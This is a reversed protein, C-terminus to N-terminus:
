TSLEAANSSFACNFYAGPPYERDEGLHVAHRLGWHAFARIIEDREMWAPAGPQQQGDTAPLYYTTRFGNKEFAVPERGDLVSPEHFHTWIFCRPTHLCIQKIMELPDESEYLQGSSFILDFEEQTARLFSLLDGCAYRARSQLIEKIVLSRLFAAPDPEIGCFQRAGLKEFAISHAGELSGLELVQYGDFRGLKGLADAALGVRADDVLSASGTGNVGCSADYDTIWRGRFIDVMTQNSPMRGNIEQIEM